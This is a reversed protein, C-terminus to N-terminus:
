SSVAYNPYLMIFGKPPIACISYTNKNKEGSNHNERM